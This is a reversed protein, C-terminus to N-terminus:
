IPETEPTRPEKMEDLTELQSQWSTKIVPIPENQAFLLFLFFLIFFESSSVLRVGKSNKRHTKFYYGVVLLVALLMGALLLSVLVLKTNKEWRPNAEEVNIQSIFTVENICHYKHLDYLNNFM